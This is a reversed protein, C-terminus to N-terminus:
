PQLIKALDTATDHEQFAVPSTFVAFFVTSSYQPFHRQAPRTTWRCTNYKPFDVFWRSAHTREISTKSSACPTLLLELQKRWVSLNGLAHHHPGPPSHLKLESARCHPATPQETPQPLVQLQAFEPALFQAGTALARNPARVPPALPKGTLQDPFHIACADVITHWYRSPHGRPRLPANAALIGKDSDPNIIPVFPM